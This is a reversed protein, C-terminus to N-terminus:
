RERRSRNNVAVTLAQVDQRLYVIEETLVDERAQARMRESEVAQHVANEIVPKAAIPAILTAIGFLLTTTTLVAGCYLTLRRAFEATTM